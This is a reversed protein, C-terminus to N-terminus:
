KAGSVPRNLVIVLIIRTFIEGTVFLQVHVKQVNILFRKIFKSLIM